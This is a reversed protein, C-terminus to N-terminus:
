TCFKKTCFKKLKAFDASYELEDLTLVVDLKPQDGDKEPESTSLRVQLYTQNKLDTFDWHDAVGNEFDEWMQAFTKPPVAAKKKAKDDHFHILGDPGVHLRLEGIKEVTGDAQKVRSQSVTTEDKGGMKTEKLNERPEASRAFTMM